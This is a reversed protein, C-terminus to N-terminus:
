HATAVVQYGQQKLADTIPAIACKKLRFFYSRKHKGNADSMGVSLIQGGQNKIIRSVAEFEAQGDPLILDIRSSAQLGGMIEIFEALIDGVTIIGVLKGHDVVPLGGIRNGYIIRAADEMSDEPGITVPTKNMIESILMDSGGPLLLAQKIDSGALFGVFSGEDVVPLHRIAHKHALHMADMVTADSSITILERAMRRKIKMAAEKGITVQSDHSGGM